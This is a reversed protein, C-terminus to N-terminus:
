PQAIRIPTRATAPTSSASASMEAPLRHGLGRASDITPGPTAMLAVGDPLGWVRRKSRLRTPSLSM